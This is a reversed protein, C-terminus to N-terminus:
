KSIRSNHPVGHIAGTEWHLPSITDLTFTPNRNSSAVGDTEVAPLMGTPLDLGPRKTTACPVAILTAAAAMTVIHASALQYLLTNCVRGSVPRVLPVWTRLRQEVKLAGSEDNLRGNRQEIITPM